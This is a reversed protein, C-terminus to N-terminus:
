SFLGNQKRVDSIFTIMYIHFKDIDSYINEFCPHRIDQLDDKSWNRQEFVDNSGIHLIEMKEFFCYNWGERDAYYVTYNLGM